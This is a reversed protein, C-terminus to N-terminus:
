GSFLLVSGRVGAKRDAKTEAKHWDTRSCSGPLPVGRDLQLMEHSSKAECSGASGAGHHSAFGSPLWLDM